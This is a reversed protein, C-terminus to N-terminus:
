PENRHIDWEIAVTSALEGEGDYVEAATDVCARGHTHLDSLLRAAEEDDVQAIATLAGRAVRHYSVSMRRAVPLVMGNEIEPGLVTLLALGAALDAPAPIAVAHVSGYSNM